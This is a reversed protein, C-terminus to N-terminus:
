RGASFFKQCLTALRQAVPQAIADPVDDNTDYQELGVIEGTGRAGPSGHKGSVSCMVDGKIATIWVDNARRVAKDGLGTIPIAPKGDDTANAAYVQQAQPGIVVTVDIGSRGVATDYSCGAIPGSLNERPLVTAIPVKFFPAVDAKTLQACVNPVTDSSSSEPSAAANQRQSGSSCAALAFGAALLTFVPLPSKM